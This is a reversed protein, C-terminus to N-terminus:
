LDELYLSTAMRAVREFLVPRPVLWQRNDDKIAGCRKLGDFLSKFYADGDGARQRPGLLILVGLRRPRTAATVGAKRCADAIRLADAFKLKRAEAWHGGILTNLKTPHWGDITIVWSRPTDDPAPDMVIPFPAPPKRKRKVPGTAATIGEPLRIQKVIAGDLLEAPIDPSPRKRTM